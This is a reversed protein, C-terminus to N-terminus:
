AEVIPAFGGYIMRAGDFPTNESSAKMREDAMMKEWGQTRAEKSPWEVWSYVVSEGDKKHAARAYDTVKGDPVDDAWAEVVRTAGYDIFVGSMKQALERYAEKNADPVPVIYGDAYGTKGDGGKADDVISDFGGIIMRKGDFPMAGGMQAMRPDSMMKQNAADRTAKDPYEFWSFVVTEDPKAQVAGKFDNVKGDPVDDGWCEVMRAVGFEKFLPAADAAHKRYAEKNATPVAVVFGEVYTM